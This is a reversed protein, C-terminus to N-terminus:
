RPWCCGASRCRSCRPSNNPRARARRRIIAAQADVDRGAVLRLRPPLLAAVDAEIEARVRQRLRLKVERRGTILWSGSSMGDAAVTIGDTAIITM